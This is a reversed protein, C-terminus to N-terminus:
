DHYHKKYKKEVENVFKLTEKYGNKLILEGVIANWSEEYSLELLMESDGAIGSASSVAHVYQEKEAKTM